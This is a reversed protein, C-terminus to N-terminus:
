EHTYSAKKAEHKDLYQYLPEVLAADRQRSIAPLLTIANMGKIIEAAAPAAVWGGTAYNYSHAQPKPEDVVVYILYRPDTMPYAALFSSLLRDEDYGGIGPKEASGTKGGVSYGAIEAKSGTGKQVTLRMLAAIKQSVEASVVRKFTKAAPSELDLRLPSKLGNNLLVSAAHAVHLPSVALGHGFSATLDHIPRWPRPIIPDVKEIMKINLPDFFGFKKYSNQLVQSGMQQGMLAVGINSSHMFVEPISMMRNQAHYDSIRFRGSALPQTADLRRALNGDVYELYAATSFLKFTSGLEYAGQLFRNFRQEPLAKAPQHPDFDPLSVAALVDQTRIDLIIATGALADFRKISKMLASRAVNQLRIDLALRLPKDQGRLRGEYAAEVGSLGDGDIGTYGLLHATLEKKPYFRRYEDRFGLGPVGLDHIKQAVAPTLGRKLWVFRGERSLRAQLVDEDVGVLYHSLQAALAQSDEILSPDAYLSHSRLSTALIEGNRDLIDARFQPKKDEIRAQIVPLPKQTTVGEFSQRIGLDGMRMVILCFPAFLCFVLIGLRTRAQNRAHGLRSITKLMAPQQRNSM